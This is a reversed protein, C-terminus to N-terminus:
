EFDNINFCKTKNLIVDNMVHSNRNICILYQIYQYISIEGSIDVDGDDDLLYKYIAFEYLENSIFKNTKLLIDKKLCNKCVLSNNMFHEIQNKNLDFLRKVNSVTARGSLIYEKMSLFLYASKMSLFLTVYELIYKISYNLFSTTHNVNTTYFPSNKIGETNISKVFSTVKLKKVLTRLYENDSIFEYYYILKTVDVIFKNNNIRIFSSIINKKDYISVNRLIELIINNIYLNEKLNNLKNSTLNYIYFSKKYQNINDFSLYTFYPIDIVHITHYDYFNFFYKIFNFCM